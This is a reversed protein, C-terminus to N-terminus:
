LFFFIFLVSFLWHRHPHPFVPAGAWQQHSYLITCVRISVTHCNRLSNFMSDDYSEGIRSIPIYRLYSFAPVQIGINMAAKDVIVLLHFCIFHGSLSPHILFCIVYMCHLIKLRIFLFFFELM